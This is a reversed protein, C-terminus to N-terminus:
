MPHGHFRWGGHIASFHRPFLARTFTRFGGGRAKNTRKRENQATSLKRALMDSTPFTSFINAPGNSGEGGGGGGGEHTKAMPRM